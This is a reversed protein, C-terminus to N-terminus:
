RDSVEQWWNPSAAEVEGSEVLRNALTLSAVGSETAVLYVHQGIVLKRVVRLAKSALWEAAREESWDPPLTM